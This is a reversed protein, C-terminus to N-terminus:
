AVRFVTTMGTAMHEPIHCHFMWDGPNDAVLAVDAKDSAALLVTDLWPEFPEPHGNRSLLRFHHGHLHIPHPWVSDNTLHLLYTRGLKLTHLPVRDEAEGVIGNIAWMKGQQFLSRIDLWQGNYTAGELSGHVGGGFTVDIHQADTLEPEQLGNSALRPVEAMPGERVPETQQYKLAVLEYSERYAHDVISFSQGQNATCDLIVDVRMAPGLVVAGDKPEHPPVPQGDMAIVVPSHGAFKLRFIRGNAANVLRLRLRENKHVHFEKLRQGNITVTNGIQGAHSADRPHDFSDIIQAQRNLLWDDLVWIVDRDVYPPDLEDVILVGYLGRGVQESSNVHSHYWFTGADPPTFQYAFSEGPEIPAQTLGPVGDMQNEIRLGHWHVTTPQDLENRAELYLPTGQTVRIVPGPVQGNYGWIETDPYGDGVLRVVQKHATLRFVQPGAAFLRPATGTVM